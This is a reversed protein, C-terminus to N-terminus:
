LFQPQFKVASVIQGSKCDEEFLIAQRIIEKEIQKQTMSSDPTWTMKQTVQKGDIKYGCSVKIRYSDGRKEISAM